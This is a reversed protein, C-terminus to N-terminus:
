RAFDLSTSSIALDIDRRKGEVAPPLMVANVNKTGASYRGDALDCGVEKLRSFPIQKTDRRM